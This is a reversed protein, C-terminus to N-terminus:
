EVAGWPLDAVHDIPEGEPSGLDGVLKPYGYNWGGIRRLQQEGATLDVILSTRDQAGLHAQDLIDYGGVRVDAIHERVEGLSMDPMQDGVIIVPKMWMLSSVEQALERTKPSADQGRIVFHKRRLLPIGYELGFLGHQSVDDLIAQQFWIGLGEFGSSGSEFLNPVILPFDDTLAPLGNGHRRAHIRM